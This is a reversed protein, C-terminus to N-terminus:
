ALLKGEQPTKQGVSMTTVGQEHCAMVWPTPPSVRWESSGWLGRRCSQDPLMQEVTVRREMSLISVVVQEPKTCIASLSAPVQLRWCRLYSYAAINWLSVEEPLLM